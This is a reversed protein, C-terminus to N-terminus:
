ELLKDALKTPSFNRSDLGFSLRVIFTGLQPTSLGLQKYNRIAESNAGGSGNTIYKTVLEKVYDMNMAKFRTNDEELLNLWLSCITQNLIRSLIPNNCTALFKHESVEDRYDKAVSEPYTKYYEIMVENITGKLLQEGSTAINDITLENDITKLSLIDLILTDILDSCRIPLQVEDEIQDFTYYNSMLLAIGRQITRKYDPLDLDNREAYEVLCACNYRNRIDPFNASIPKIEEKLPTGPCSGRLVSFYNDIQNLSIEVSYGMQRFSEELITAIEATSKNILGSSQAFQSLIFTDFPTVVFDEPPTFNNSEYVLRITNQDTRANPGIVLDAVAARSIIGEARTPM